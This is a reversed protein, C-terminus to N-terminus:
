LYLFFSLTDASLEASRPIEDYFARHPSSSKLTLRLSVSDQWDHAERQSM